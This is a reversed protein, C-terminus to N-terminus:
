EQIPRDSTHRRPDTVVFWVCGGVLLVVGIALWPWPSWEEVCEQGYTGFARCITGPGSRNLYAVYFLPLSLGSALGPIGGIARPRNALIITAVVPLVLVLPNITFAGLFGLAYAAGTASWAIFWAWGRQDQVTSTM